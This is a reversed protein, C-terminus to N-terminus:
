RRIQPLSVYKEEIQLPLHPLNTALYIFFPQDRHAEAFDMAKEFFIDNCYGTFKKQVNNHRLIPDFFSNGPPNGAQGIGGGVHHLCEEFGM